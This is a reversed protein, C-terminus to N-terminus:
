EEEYNKEKSSSAPKNNKKELFFLCLEIVLMQFATIENLNKKVTEMIENYFNQNRKKLEKIKKTIKELEQPNECKMIEVYYDNLENQAISAEILKKEILLKLYKKQAKELKRLEEIKEGLTMNKESM